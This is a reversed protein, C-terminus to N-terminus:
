IAQLAVDAIQLEHRAAAIQIVRAALITEIIVAKQQLGFLIAAFVPGSQRPARLRAQHSAAADTDIVTHIPRRACCETACTALGATGDWFHLHDVRDARVDHLTARSPRGDVGAEVPLVAVDLCEQRRLVPVRHRNAVGTLSQFVDFLSVEVEGSREVHGVDRDVVICVPQHVVPLGAIDAVDEPLVRPM